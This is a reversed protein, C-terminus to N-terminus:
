GVLRWDRLTIEKPPWHHQLEGVYQVAAVATASLMEKPVVNIVHLYGGSLLLLLICSSQHGFPLCNKNPIQNCASSFRSKERMLLYTAPHRM